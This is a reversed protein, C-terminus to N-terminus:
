ADEIDLKVLLSSKTERGRLDLMPIFAWGGVVYLLRVAAVALTPNAAFSDDSKVLMRLFVLENEEFEWELTEDWIPDNQPPNEGRHLFGLKHHKYPSTKRKVPDKELDDPHVLLCSVYPKIEDAERGDPIPLDSAGAIHLRLRKLKGTSLKGSGDARLAAPKLVYGDSGSFLAENLQMGAGFSQWNLACIQAGVGWFPVPNLNKSSIRTGKPFVRMLHHANHRGIKESALKLHSSLGSESINILHHHPGNKLGSDVAYWSNDSPKVSQAYVGLDALEPIILSSPAAKKQDKYAKRDRQEDEDSEESSSSNEDQQAADALYHEVIVVIKCGLEELLVHRGVHDQELHGEQRVAESLLRGGWVEKMIQVLRLQGHASCHNELSLLIPSAQHGEGQAPDALQKDFFDRITECVSRFSIRSVLTFGHTVKPEELDDDNDWADIEVCRSGTKLVTEYSAASSSGVLQHATLYTNHSSSIFYEPLPHSRTTLSPPVNIHRKNLLAKLAATSENSGGDETPLVGQHVLFSKLAHSVRLQDKATSSERASHGGGAVSTIAVEEGREDENTEAKSFPNLAAFRSTILHESTSM